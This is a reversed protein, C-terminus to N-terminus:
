QGAGSAPGFVSKVEGSTAWVNTRVLQAVPHM